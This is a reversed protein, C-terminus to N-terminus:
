EHDVVAFKHASTVWKPIGYSVRSLFIMLFISKAPAEPKVTPVAPLPGINVLEEELNEQELEELEAM